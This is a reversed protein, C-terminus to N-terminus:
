WMIASFTNIIEKDCAYSGLRSELHFLDFLDKTCMLKLAENRIRITEKHIIFIIILIHFYSRRLSNELMFIKKGLYKRKDYYQSKIIRRLFGCGNSIQKSNECLSYLNKYNSFGVSLKRLIIFFGTVKFILDTWFLVNKFHSFQSLIM